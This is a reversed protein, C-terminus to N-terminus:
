SLFKIKAGAAEKNSPFPAASPHDKSNLLQCLLETCYIPCLLHTLSNGPPFTNQVTSGYEKLKKGLNPGSSLMIGIDFNEALYTDCSVTSFTTILLITMRWICPLM